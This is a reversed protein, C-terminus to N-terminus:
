IFVIIWWKKEIESFVDAEELRESRINTEVCSEEDQAEIEDEEEEHNNIKDVIRLSSEIQVRCRTWCSAVYSRESTTSSRTEM